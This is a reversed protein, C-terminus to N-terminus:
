TFIQKEDNFIWMCMKLVHIYRVVIYLNWIIQMYVTLLTSYEFYAINVSFTSSFNDLEHYLWLWNQNDDDFLRTCIDPNSSLKKKLYGHPGKFYYFQPGV